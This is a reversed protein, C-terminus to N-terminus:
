DEGHPKSEFWDALESIVRSLVIMDDTSLTEAKLLWLGRGEEDTIKTTDMLEDLKSLCSRACDDLIDRDLNQLGLDCEHFAGMISDAEGNIHPLMLCRRAEAFKEDTYSISM